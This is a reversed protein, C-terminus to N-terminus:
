AVQHARDRRIGRLGASDAPLGQLWAEAHENAISYVPRDPM